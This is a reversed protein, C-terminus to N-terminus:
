EKPLQNALNTVENGLNRLMTANWMGNGSATSWISRLRSVDLRANVFEGDFKVLRTIIESDPMQYPAKTKEAEDAAKFIVMTAFSIADHKLLLQQQYIPSQEKAQKKRDGIEQWQTVVEATFYSTLVLGATILFVRKWIPHHIIMKDAKNKIAKELHPVFGCLLGVLAITGFLAGVLLKIIPFIWM